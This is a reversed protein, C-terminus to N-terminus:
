RLRPIEVQLESVAEGKTHYPAGGWATRPRPSPEGPLPRGLGVTAWGSRPNMPQRLCGIPHPAIVVGGCCGADVAADSDPSYVWACIRVIMVPRIIPINRPASSWVMTEVAIRVMASSRRPRDTCAHTVVAYRIVEVM